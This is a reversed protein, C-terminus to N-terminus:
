GPRGLGRANGDLGAAPAPPVAGPLGPRHTTEIQPDLRAFPHHQEPGASGTLGRQEGPQGPQEIRDLGAAVLFTLQQQVADRGTTGPDLSHPGPSRQGAQQQLIWLGLGHEGPATVVHREAQLVVGDGTVPDPGPHLLRQPLDPERVSDLVRRRRQGAALTLPQSQGPHQRQPGAQQQEVFRGRHQVRVASVPHPGADGGHQRQGARAAHQDLVAHAGPQRQDVPNHHEFGATPHMGVSRRAHDEGLLGLCQGGGADPYGSNPHAPGPRDSPDPVLEFPVLEFPVLEFPVLEFPVLEFPVLEFPVLVLPVLAIPVPAM